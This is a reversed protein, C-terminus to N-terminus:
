RQRGWRIKRPPLLFRFMELQVIRTLAQADQAIKVFAQSGDPLSQRALSEFDGGTVAQRFRKLLEDADLKLGADRLIAIHDALSGIKSRITAALSMAQPSNGALKYFTVAAVNVEEVADSFSSVATRLDNRTERRRAFREVVLWGLIVIIGAVFAPVFDTFAVGKKVAALPAPEIVLHLSIIRLKM